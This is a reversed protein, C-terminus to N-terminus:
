GHHAESFPESLVVTIDDPHPTGDTYIRVRIKDNRLGQVNLTWLDGSLENGVQLKHSPSPLFGDYVLAPGATRNGSAGRSETTRRRAWVGSPWRGM